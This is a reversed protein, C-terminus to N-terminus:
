TSSCVVRNGSQAGSQVLRSGILEPLQEQATREASREVAELEKALDREILESNLPDESNEVCEQDLRLQITAGQAWLQRARRTREREDDTMTAMSDKARARESGRSGRQPIM